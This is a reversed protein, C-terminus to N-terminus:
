EFIPVESKGEYFFASTASDQSLTIKMYPAYYHLDICNHEQHVVTDPKSILREIEIRSMGKKLGRMKKRNSEVISNSWLLGCLFLLGIILAGVFLKRKMKVFHM